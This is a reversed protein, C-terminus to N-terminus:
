SWAGATGATCEGAAVSQRRIMMVEAARRVERGGLKAKRFLTSFQCLQAPVGGAGGSARRFITTQHDFRAACLAPVGRSPQQQQLPPPGACLACRYCGRMSSCGPIRM